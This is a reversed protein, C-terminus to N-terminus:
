ESRRIFIPPFDDPRGALTWQIYCDYCLFKRHLPDLRKLSVRPDRETMQVDCRTCKMDAEM